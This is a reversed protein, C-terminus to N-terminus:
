PKNWWATCTKGPLVDNTNPPGFTGKPAVAKMAKTSAPKAEPNDTTYGISAGKPITWKSTNTFLYDAWSVDGHMGSIYKCALNVKGAFCPASVALLVVGILASIKGYKTM